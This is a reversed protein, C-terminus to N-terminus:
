WWARTTETPGDVETFGADVVRIPAQDLAAWDAPALEDLTEVRWDDDHWARLVESRGDLVLREWALQAAHGCQAAAKGTTLGLGPRLAITVVPARGLGASQGLAEPSTPPAAATSSPGLPEQGSDEAERPFETGSVQLEDLAPPLPRAPLPVFARVQAGDQAVTVGPLEQCRDWRTGRARRVLKRIRGDRWRRLYPGWEGRAREAALLSVVARAAAACVARHTPLAAKDYRVALQMAWPGDAVGPELLRPDLLSPDLGALDAADAHAEDPEPLSEPDTM